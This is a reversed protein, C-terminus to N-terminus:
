LVKCVYFKMNYFDLILPILKKEKKIIGEVCLRLVSTVSIGVNKYAM